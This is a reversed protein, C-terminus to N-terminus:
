VLIRIINYQTWRAHDCLRPVSKTDAERLITVMQEDTFRTKEM